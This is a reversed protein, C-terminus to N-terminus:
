LGVERFIEPGRKAGIEAEHLSIRSDRNTDYAKMVKTYEEPTLHVIAKERIGDELEKRTLYGDGNYDFRDFKELLGFMKYRDSRADRAPTAPGGGSGPTCAQPLLIMALLAPITRLPIM